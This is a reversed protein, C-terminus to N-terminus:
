YQGAGVMQGPLSATGGAPDACEARAEMRNSLQAMTSISVDGKQRAQVLRELLSDFLKYGRPSEALNVPNLCFHFVGRHRAAAEIGKQFRDLRTQHSVIQSRPEGIPYLHMSAPINWLGPLEQHPWVPPPTTRGLENLLRILSGPLSRGLKEALIPARGRYCSINYEPLLSHHAELNRPFSFAVPQVGLDKLAAVGAELEKRVVARTASSDSWMLHTLGGHLGIDQPTAAHAVHRIFARQYWLPATVENGPAIRATWDKPLGAMRPDAAGASGNLAMGGVVLWTASLHSNCLSRLVHHHAAMPNPYRALFRREGLIDLHGWLLEANVSLVVTGQEMQTASSDIENKM